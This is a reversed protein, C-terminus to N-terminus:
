TDSPPEELQNQGMRKIIDSGAPSNMLAILINTFDNTTLNKGKDKLLKQLVGSEQLSHTTVFLTDVMKDAQQIYKLCQKCFNRINEIASIPDKALVNPIPLRKPVIPATSKTPTSKSRKRRKRRAVALRGKSSHHHSRAATGAALVDHPPLPGNWSQNQQKVPYFVDPQNPTKAQMYWEDEQKSDTCEL